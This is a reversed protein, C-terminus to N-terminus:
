SSWGVVVFGCGTQMWPVLILTKKLFKSNYVMSFISRQERVTRNITTNSGIEGGKRRQQVFGCNERKKGDHFLVTM